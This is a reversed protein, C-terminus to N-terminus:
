CLRWRVPFDWLTHPQFGTPRTTPSNALFAEALAIKLKEDTFDEVYGRYVWVVMGDSESRCVRAGRTRMLPLEAQLRRMETAQQAQQEALARTRAEAAAAQQSAQRAAKVDATEYGAKSVLFRLYDPSGVTMAESVNLRYCNGTGQAELQVSFLVQDVGSSRACFQGDFAAGKRGCLLAFKERINALARANTQCFLQSKYRYSGRDEGDGASVVAQVALGGLPVSDLVLGKGLSIASSDATISGTACGALAIAMSLTVLWRGGTLTKAM